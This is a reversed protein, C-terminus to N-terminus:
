EGPMSFCLEFCIQIRCLTAKSHHFDNNKKLFHRNEIIKMSLIVNKTIIVAHEIFGVALNDLQELIIPAQGEGVDRILQADGFAGNPPPHVLHHLIPHQLNNADNFGMVEAPVFGAHDADGNLGLLDFLYGLRDGLEFFYGVEELYRSLEIEEGLDHTFVALM